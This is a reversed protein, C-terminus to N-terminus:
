GKPNFKPPLTPFQFHPDPIPFPDGNWFSPVNACIENGGAAAELEIDTLKRMSRNM